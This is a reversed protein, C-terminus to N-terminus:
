PSQLNMSFEDETALHQGTPPESLQTCKVRIKIRNYGSDDDSRTTIALLFGM